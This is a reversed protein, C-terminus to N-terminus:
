DSVAATAGPAQAVVPADLPITRPAQRPAEGTRQALCAPSIYPWAQRACEASVTAVTSLPAPTAQHARQIRAMQVEAPVVIEGVPALRDVLKTPRAEVGGGVAVQVLGALLAASVACVVVVPKGLHIM